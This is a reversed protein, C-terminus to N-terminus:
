TAGAQLTKEIKKVTFIEGRLRGVVRKCEEKQDKGIVVRESENENECM